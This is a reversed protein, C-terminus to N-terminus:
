VPLREDDNMEIVVVFSSSWFIATALNQLKSTAFSARPRAIDDDSTM